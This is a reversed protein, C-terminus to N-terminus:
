CGASVFSDTKNSAFYALLGLWEKVGIQLKSLNGVLDVSAFLRNEPWTRHDVPYPIVPWGAQCFVGVSRPMHWATTILVWKEHKAPKLLQKSFIANEYTNRSQRELTVRDLNIAQQRYLREAVDAGKVSQYVMSGSGGSYVLKAKPYRRALTLFALQREAAHNVEPQRWKGSMVPEEAGGLVIIGDIDSPLDPNTKFRTELPQLLWEGIPLSTILVIAIIAPVLFLKALFFKNKLFALLGLFLVLALFNDPAAVVWLIKSLLFFLSDM